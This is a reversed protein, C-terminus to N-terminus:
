ESGVPRVRHSELVRLLKGQLELSINSIGDLFLTGGHAISFYGPRHQTAGTFAGRVHGFLESGILAPTLSSIDVAMFPKGSRNSNDHIARAVLEKGTGSKGYIMVTFDTPAIKLIQRMIDEMAKSRGIIPSERRLMSLERKLFVNESRLARDELARAVTM